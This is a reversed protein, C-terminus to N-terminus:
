WLLGVCGFPAGQKGHVLQHHSTTGVQRFQPWVENHIHEEVRALQLPVCVAHAVLLNSEVATAGHLAVNAYIWGGTLIVADAPRAM